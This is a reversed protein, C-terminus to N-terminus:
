AGFADLGLHLDDILGNLVQMPGARHIQAVPIKRAVIGCGPSILHYVPGKDIKVFTLIFASILM